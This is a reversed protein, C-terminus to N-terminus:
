PVGQLDCIGQASFLHDWFARGNLDGKQSLVLAQFLQATTLIAIDFTKATELCNAPIFNERRSPEKECQLNAILVGKGQWNENAMADRVWNDLERVDSLRLSGLRGKIELMALRGYPDVLRGDERGRQRPNQVTAGLLGLADRVVPELVDEGQEYLLKLFRSERALQVRAAGLQAELNQIAVEMERIQKEIPLQSPLHFKGIWCPPEKEFALGYRHRLILDIADGTSVETPAPFWYVHGSTRVIRSGSSGTRKSAEFSLMFSIPRHFRTEALPVLNPGLSDAEPSGLAVYQRAFDGWESEFGELYFSWRRVSEFYFSFEDRVARIDDGTEYVFQPEMPLWWTSPLYPSSGLHFNPSGIAIVESGDSFLHRAFQKWKPLSDLKMGAAYNVDLFPSFDLIVTDFDSVNLDAPLNHWEFATVLRTHNASGLVLIRRNMVAQQRAKRMM